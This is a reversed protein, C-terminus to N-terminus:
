TWRQRCFCVIKEAVTTGLRRAKGKDDLVELTAWEEVTANVADRLTGFKLQAALSAKMGIEPFTKLTRRLGNIPRIPPAEYAAIHSKHKDLDKDTFTRYLALISQLTHTRDQTPIPTLGGCLHLVNVRKILESVSMSGPMPVFYEKGFRGKKKQQLAGAKDFYVTGEYMLYSFKYVDRMGLMQYGQLRESRIADVLEELKKFEIGVLVPGGGEGRGEFMVDGFELTTEEVELGLKRLPAILEKSGARYDVFIM